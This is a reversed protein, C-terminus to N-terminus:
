RHVYVAPNSAQAVGSAPDLSFGQWGIVVGRLWPAPPVVYGATLSAGGLAVLLASGPDLWIPDVIPPAARPAGPFGIFLAGGAGTPGTLTATAFGGLPQTSAVVAPMSPRSLAIGGGVGVGPPVLVTNPDLRATGTGDVVLGTGLADDALTSGGRVVLTGGSMRVASWAAFAGGVYSGAVQLTGGTQDIGPQWFGTSRVDADFVAADCTDLVLGAGSLAHFVSDRVHLQDCRAALVGGGSSAVTRDSRCAEILIRGRCDRCSLLAPGLANSWTLGRLVVSQTPGLGSISMAPILFDVHAGPDGLM